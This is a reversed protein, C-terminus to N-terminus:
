DNLTILNIKHSFATCADLAIIGKGYYPSFNPDDTFEGGGAEYHCHGFSCHWHGCVVTKEPVTAGCHAAEMGNLWRAREWLVPEANRWDPLLTYDTKGDAMPATICPLWGHTFVYHETEFHDVMAPILKQVFPTQLFARGVEGHAFLLQERDAGTLQCVTDVTGNRIHHSQFYSGRHWGSLLSMALDEHNGRILILRDQALLELLFDQLPKAETGRDFLDGCIILKHPAGEQFFGNATLAERLLTYYGHIDATVYYKM